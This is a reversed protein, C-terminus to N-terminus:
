SGLLLKAEKILPDLHFVPIKNEKSFSLKDIKLVDQALMIGQSVFTEALYGKLSPLITIPYLKQSDILYELGRNKPWDWGLIEIGVCQCYRIVQSTFKTNTVLLSRLQINKLRQSKFFSSERLDLFRAYDELAVRLDVRGGALNHYKCEGIYLTKDKKALFDIEYDACKGSISQNLHVKFNNRSLIAGIYKEFPFGTPGLKRMGEKLDFRLAASPVKESLLQKVRKFIDSTRIGPFAERKITRAIEQALPEPAGVKRASRYIKKFSLPEREGKANVVYIQPM